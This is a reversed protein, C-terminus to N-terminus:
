DELLVLNEPRPMEWGPHHWDSDQQALERQQDPMDTAAPKRRKKKPDFGPHVDPRKHELEGEELEDLFVRSTIIFGLADYAHDDPSDIDVDDEPKDPDVQLAPITRISYKCREQFRLRPRGWPHVKGEADTKYSLLKHTLDYKVKRSGPGHPAAIFAPGMYEEEGTERNYRKGYHKLLGKAFDEALTPAGKQHSATSQDMQEDYLIIEPKLGLKEWRKPIQYGADAAYIHSFVVEHIIEIDNEPGIAALLMVGKRWGWDMGAVLRWGKIHQLNTRLVHVDKNWEDFAQGEFVDWNGDLFAARLRAPLSRLMRMYSTANHPNDTALAKVYHFDEKKFPAIGTKEDPEIFAKNEDLEFTGDVFLDKVWAHGIGGPNTAAIFPTHEIGPWRLSGRLATIIGSENRTLEDIIAAAFESSQYKAPDDLNRFAVVGGGFRAHLTFEKLSMNWTGLWFPYREVIRGKTARSLQREWLEPYTECFIAVRVGRHGQAFWRLLLIVAVWRLIYSKGGGRAGGYLVFSYLMVAAIFSRQKPTPNVLRSLRIPEGAAPETLEPKVAAAL